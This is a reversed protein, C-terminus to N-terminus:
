DVINVNISIELLDLWERSCLWEGKFCENYKKHQGIIPLAFCALLNVLNLWYQSAIIIIQVSYDLKSSRFVMYVFSYCFFVIKQRKCRTTFLPVSFQNKSKKRLRSTWIKFIQLLFHTTKDCTFGPNSNWALYWFLICFTNRRLRNRAFVRLTFLIVTIVNRWFDTM